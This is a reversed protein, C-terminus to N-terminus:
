LISARKTVWTPQNQLPFKLPYVQSIRTTSKQELSVAIWFLKPPEGGAFVAKSPPGLVISIELALHNSYPPGLAQCITVSAEHSSEMHRCRRHQVQMSTSAPAKKHLCHRHGPPDIGAVGPSVGELNRGGNPCCQHRYIGLQDQCCRVVPPGVLRQDM